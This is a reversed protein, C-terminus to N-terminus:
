ESLKSYGGSKILMIYLTGLLKQVSINHSVDQFDKSDGLEWCDTKIRAFFQQKGLVVNILTTMVKILFAIQLDVASLTFTYLPDYIIFFTHIILLM